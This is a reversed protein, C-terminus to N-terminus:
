LVVILATNWFCWVTLCARYRTMSVRAYAAAPEHGNLDMELFPIAM